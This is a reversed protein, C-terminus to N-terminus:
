GQDIGKGKKANELEQQLVFNQDCMQAIQAQAQQLCEETTFAPAEGSGGANM